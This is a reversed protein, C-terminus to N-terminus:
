GKHEHMNATGAPRKEVTVEIDLDGAHAFHLKLPIQQGEELNHKLGFLMLHYGGPKFEVSGGAPVKLGREVPRMRMIGSADQTHEHIEVKEADPSSVSQLTDAEQGANKLILYAAGLKNPGSTPRSWAHEATLSGLRYEQAGASFAAFILGGAIGMWMRRMPDGGCTQSFIVSGAQVNLSDAAIKLQNPLAKIGCAARQSMALLKRHAPRLLKEDGFM